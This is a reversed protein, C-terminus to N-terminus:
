GDYRVTIESLENSKDVKNNLDTNNYTLYTNSQIFLYILNFEMLYVFNEIM